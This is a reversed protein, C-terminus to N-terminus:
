NFCLMAITPFSTSAIHNRGLARFTLTIFNLCARTFPPLLKRRKDSWNQSRLGELFERSRRGNRYRPLRSGCNQASRRSQLFRREPPHTAGPNPGSEAPPISPHISPQSRTTKPLSCSSHSSSGKSFIRFPPAEGIRHQQLLPSEGTTRAKAHVRNLHHEFAWFTSRRRGM